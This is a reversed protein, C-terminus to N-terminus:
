SRRSRSPHCSPRAAGARGGARGRGCRRRDPRCQGGVEPGATAAAVLAEALLLVGVVATVAVVMAMLMMLVLVVAVGAAMMLVLVLAGVVMVVVVVMAVVVVMVAAVTVPSRVVVATLVAVVAVAIPTTDLLTKGSGVRRSTGGAWVGSAAAALCLPGVGLLM